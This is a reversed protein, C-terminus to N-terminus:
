VRSSDLLMAYVEERRAGCEQSSYGSNLIELAKDIFDNQLQPNELVEIVAKSFEEPQDAIKCNINNKMPLGEAGITTSIIPVRYSVGELIKMRMGSGIRLPVIMVAGEMVTALDPVFGEFIVDSYDKFWERKESSWKGVVSLNIGPKTRRIKSWCNKLFWDLGDLNPYHQDPGLFLVRNNSVFPQNIDHKSLEMPLPSAEVKDPNLGESILIDRDIDTLSIVKDFRDILNFELIKSNAIKWSFSSDPEPLTALEREMRKFRIEHHVFIKPINEPVFHVLPALEIFDIQVLDYKKSKLEDQFLQLLDDFYYEVLNCTTLLMEQKMVEERTPIHKRGTIRKITDIFINDKPRATPRQFTIIKIDPWLSKLAVLHEEKPQPCILTVKNSKRLSEIMRYTGSKGGDNVPYPFVLTALLIDM